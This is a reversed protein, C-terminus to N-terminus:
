RVAVLASSHFRLAEQVRQDWYSWTHGGPFEAYEHPIGLAELHQHFRRSSDLLADETGCDLRLAPLLRRDIREALSFLDNPGGSPDAGFIRIFRREAPSPEHTWSL